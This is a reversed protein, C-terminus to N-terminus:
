KKRHQKLRRDPFDEPKAANPGVTISMDLLAAVRDLTKLSVGIHGAMFRSLMSASVEIQQGIRYRSLQSDRIAQRIQESLRDSKKVMSITYCPSSRM